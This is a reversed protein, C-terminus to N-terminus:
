HGYKRTNNVDRQVTKSLCSSFMKLAGLALSKKGHFNHFSKPIHARSVLPSLDRRVGHPTGPFIVVKETKPKKKQWVFNQVLNSDTCSHQESDSFRWTWLPCLSASCDLGKIGQFCSKPLLQLTNINQLHNHNQDVALYHISFWQVLNQLEKM